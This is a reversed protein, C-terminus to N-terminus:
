SVTRWFGCQHAAYANTMTIGPPTPALALVTSPTARPWTPIGTANPDASGAFNTWYSIMTSALARQQPTYSLPQNTVDVPKGAIDFLYMLEAAHSAGAPFGPKTQIYPPAHEDAFEYSYTPVKAALLRNTELQPCIFIRDSIVTYYAVGPSAYRSSPYQRIVRDTETVSFNTQLQGRYDTIPAGAFEFLGAIPLMENRNHGSLVPVRHFLGARLATAPHLPLTPTGYAAAIFKSNQALVQAPSLNRLCKLQAAGTCKLAKAAATGNAMVKSVPLWFSGAPQDPALGNAPWDLLCSGSQMVAADFLGTSTPSTLQGCVAVGGGSQGAITVKGPNGGFAVINQRVWRLAAQQDQLYFDGSGALGPLGFLGFIGLRFDVSVVVVEGQAVMRTADIESGAGSSLGGGHFWVIVPKGGGSASKPATVDVHLCDEVGTVSKANGQACPPMSEDAARVGSWPRVPQPPKWRLENVPPAAYPIGRFHRVGNAEVGRVDGAATHVVTAAPVVPTVVAVAVLLHLLISVLM